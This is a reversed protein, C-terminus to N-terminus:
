SVFAAGRCSCSKCTFTAHRVTNVQQAADAYEHQARDVKSQTVQVKQNMREVAAREVAADLDKKSLFIPTYRATETKVTLGEAQFVPVGTFGPTNHGQDDLM